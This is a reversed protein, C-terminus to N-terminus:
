YESDEGAEQGDEAGDENAGEANAGDEEPADAPNPEPGDEYDEPDDLIVPTDVPYFHKGFEWKHTNGVYLSIVRGQYYFTLAGPWVLSRVVVTGYSKTPVAQPGELDEHKYETPDGCLRVAWSPQKIKDSLGISKDQTIPKLLVEYPDKAEQAKNYVEADFEQEQDWDAPAEELEVHATKCNVLINPTGHVWM